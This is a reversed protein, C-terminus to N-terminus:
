ELLIDYFELAFWSCLGTDLAERTLGVQECEEVSACAYGEDLGSHHVFKCFERYHSFGGVHSVKAYGVPLVLMIDGVHPPSFSPARLEITKRYAALNLAHHVKVRITTDPNTYIRGGLCNKTKAVENSSALAGNYAAKRTRRLPFTRELYNLRAM